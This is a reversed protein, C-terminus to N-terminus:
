KGISGQSTCHKGPFVVASGTHWLKRRHSLSCVLVVVASNNNSNLLSFISDRSGWHPNLPEQCVDSCSAEKTARSCLGRHRVRCFRSLPNNLWSLLWVCCGCFLKSKDTGKLDDSHGLPILKMWCVSSSFSSSKENKLYSICWFIFYGNETWSNQCCM